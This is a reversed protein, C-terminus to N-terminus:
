RYFSNDKHTPDPKSLGFTNYLFHKQQRVKENIMMLAIDIEIFNANRELYAKELISDMDDFLEEVTKWNPTEFGEAM